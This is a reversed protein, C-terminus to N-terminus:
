AAYTLRDLAMNETVMPAIRRFRFRELREDIGVAAVALADLSPSLEIDSILLKLDYARNFAYQADESLSFNVAVLNPHQKDLSNNNQKAHIAENLANKIYAQSDGTRDPVIGDVYVESNLGEMYVVLSNEFTQLLLVPYEKLATSRAREIYEPNTFDSLTRDLFESRARDSPLSFPMCLDYQARISSDVKNLLEEIFRMLGFSKRYAYCEVYWTESEVQASLDPGSKAWQVNSGIRCLYEAVQLQWFLSWFDSFEPSKLLPKEAFWCPLKEAISLLEDLHAFSSESNWTGLRWAMYHCYYPPTEQHSMLLKLSFARGIAPFMHLRQAVIEWDILKHVLQRQAPNPDNMKMGSVSECTEEIFSCCM